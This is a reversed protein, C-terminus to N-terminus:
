AEMPSPKLPGQVFNLRDIFVRNPMLTGLMVVDELRDTISIAGMLKLLSVKNLYAPNQAVHNLDFDSPLRFVMGRENCMRIM